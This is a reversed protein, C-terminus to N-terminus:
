HEAQEAAWGTVRDVDIAIVPGDLAHDAYQAYKARLATTAAARESAPEVLRARGDARVWWLRTWDEDWADVLVSVRPNAEINAIRRLRTSRKPKADVASYVVDAAVAFTIPVVHPTGAASATALYAHRTRALRSRADDEGLSPV